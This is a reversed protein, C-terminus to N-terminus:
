KEKWAEWGGKLVYVPSLGVQERLRKAVEHSSLCKQSSCYVVILQGPRWTDLIPALLADWNDENLPLAGPIHQQDYESQSRADIWLALDKNIQSLSIENNKLNWDPKKPHVLAAGISPLLAILVIVFAELAIKGIRNLM